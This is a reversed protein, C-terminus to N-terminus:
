TLIAVIAVLVALCALGLMDTAYGVVLLLITVIVLSLLQIHQIKLEFKKKQPKPAEKFLGNKMACGLCVNHPKGSMFLKGCMICVRKKNYDPFDRAYKAKLEEISNFGMNM